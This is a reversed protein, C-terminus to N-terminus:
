KKVKAKVHNFLSTSDWVNLGFYGEKYTSDNQEIVKEGNLHVRINEGNVNVKLDYTTNTQLKLNGDKNYTALEQGVGNVFKILKVINNKVDVNVAYSNKATEDSRFVLAGAGIPNGITDKEPDNPHSDSDLVKIKAQYTFNKAKENSVIFADGNSQGQKGNMTDVWSGSVTTWQQINTKFGSKKKWSSKLPYIELSKLLVNGDMSYVKLNQSSPDQFIQDTIVVEGNNGFVEVSSRDVLIHMKITKDDLRLPANHYDLVENGYHFDDSHTRDLFMEQNKVDYGIKTTEGESGKKVEFGFESSTSNSIDFEAIIEYTDGSFTSLYDNDVTITKNEFAVKERNNRISNLSVPTQKLRVGDKTQTLEMKRPLTMSSRWTSTPTNNAYQWNSMWGLWYKEGHEGEIGSWDVAAYFDAGYDTWLIQDFSNENTFTKGDFNGVFYQIGSGGAPAGDNISVQLVWKTKNPDGDIPLEVLTPCEWIGGNSGHTSPIWDGSIATWDTLTGNLIGSDHKQPDKAVQDVDEPIAGKNYVQFDDVNIHGWGGTARDVVKMYVIEDIFDSADWVYRNYKEDRFKTNAQRILEQDDSARVLSVYRNSLDNGGGLLFNIEGSGSLKFYSSHLEGTANDGEHLDSFGWLHYNGQHEFDGGWFSTTDTVHDDTFANGKIIKWGELNGTEFDHNKIDKEATVINKSYQVNQFNTASNWINLGLLGEKYSGDNFDHILQGDLYVKINENLTSVKLHYTQNPQLDKEKEAIVSIQGNEMKMVKVTDNLADINAFYGNKAEADARFVLAGAGKSATEELVTIDAEYHFNSGEQSSMIFGDQEDSGVKGNLTDNWSGSVVEWNYLNSRFNTTKKFEVNRFSATSKEAILGFQGYDYSADQKELVLEQNMYVKITNEIAEVKVHYPISTTLQFPKSAIEQNEGSVNKSLM